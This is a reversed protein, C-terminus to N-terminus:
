EPITLKMRVDEYRSRREYMESDRNKRWRGQRDRGYEIEDNGADVNRKENEGRRGNVERALRRCETQQFTAPNFAFALSTEEAGCL